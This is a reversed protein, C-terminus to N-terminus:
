LGRIIARHDAHDGRQLIAGCRSGTYFGVLMQRATHKGVSRGEGGGREIQRNRWAARILRAAEQRTLFRERRPPQDPVVARFVMNFGGRGFFYDNIAASLIVLERRAMNPTTRQAAYEKQAAGTVEGVRMLGFFDLLTQVMKRDENRRSHARRDLEPPQHAALKKELYVSLCDAVLAQNPNDVGRPKPDHKEICYKTLAALKEDETAGKGLGTSRTKGGDRIVWAPSRGDRYEVWYLYPGRSRRPM